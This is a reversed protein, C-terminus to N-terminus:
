QFDGAQFRNDSTAKPPVSCKATKTGLTVVGCNSPNTCSTDGALLQLLARQGSGEMSTLGGCRATAAPVAMALLVCMVPILRHMCRLSLTRQSCTHGSHCCCINASQHCFCISASQLLLHWISQDRINITKLPKYHRTPQRQPDVGSVTDHHNQEHSSLDDKHGSRM